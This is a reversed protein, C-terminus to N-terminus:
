NILNGAAGNLMEPPIYTEANTEVCEPKLKLAGPQPGAKKKQLLPNSSHSLQFAPQVPKCGAHYIEGTFITRLVECPNAYPVPSTALSGPSIRWYFSTRRM